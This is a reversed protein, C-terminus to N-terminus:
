NAQGRTARPDNAGAAGQARPGRDRGGHEMDEEASEADEYQDTQPRRDGTRERSDGCEPARVRIRRVRTEVQQQCGEGRRQRQQARARPGDIRAEEAPLADLDAVSLTLISGGKSPAKVCNHPDPGACGPGRVTGWDLALRVGDHATGDRAKPGSQKRRFM